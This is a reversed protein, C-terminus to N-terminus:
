TSFLTKEEKREMLLTNITNIQAFLHCESHQKKLVHTQNCTQLSIKKKRTGGLLVTSLPADVINCHTENNKMEKVTM